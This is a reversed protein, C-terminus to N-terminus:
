NWEGKQIDLTIKFEYSSAVNNVFDIQGIWTSNYEKDMPNENLVSADIFVSSNENVSNWLFIGEDNMTDLVQSFLKNGVIKKVKNQEVLRPALGIVHAELNMIKSDWSSKRRSHKITDRLKFSVKWLRFDSIKKGLYNPLRWESSRSSTKKLKTIKMNKVKGLSLDSLRARVTDRNAGISLAIEKPTFNEGQHNKLFEVIRNVVTMKSYGYEM